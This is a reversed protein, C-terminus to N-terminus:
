TRWVATSTITTMCMVDSTSRVLFQCRKGVMVWSESELLWLDRRKKKKLQHKKIGYTLMRYQDKDGQSIVSLM